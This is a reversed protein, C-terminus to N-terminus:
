INQFNPWPLERGLIKKLNKVDSKYYNILTKRDESDIKPKIREGILFKEVMSKRVFKPIIRKAIQFLTDSKRIRESIPGRPPSYPNYVKDDLRNVKYNLGLFKLIEELTKEKNQIFEEFIIIKVQNKGFINLFRKVDESYIGAELGIRPISYDLGCNMEKKIQEHFSINLLNKNIQFFYHSFVREVPDRLSILIKAHPLTQYILNSSDPDSLYWVSAEGIIKEDKVKEFLALYDKKNRIPKGYHNDPVTKRCFFAPEKEESMYIGPIKRLLEYLSTTAAKPAGAIFLNPWIEVFKM